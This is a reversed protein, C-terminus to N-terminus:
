LTGATPLIELTEVTGQPPLLIAEVAAQAVTAPSIM